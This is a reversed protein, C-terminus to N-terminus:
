ECVHLYDGAVLWAGSANLRLPTGFEDLSTNTPLLQWSDKAPFRPTGATLNAPLASLQAYRSFGYANVFLPRTTLNMSGDPSYNSRFQGFSVFYSPQGRMYQDGILSFPNAKTEDLLLRYERALDYGQYSSLAYIQGVQNTNAAYVTELNTIPGLTENLNFQTWQLAAENPAIAISAGANYWLGTSSGIIARNNGTGYAISAFSAKEPAHALTTLHLQGAAFDAPDIPARMLSKDTLIYLYNGDGWVKLVCGLNGLYKFAFATTPIGHYGHGTSNCLIALGSTGGAVIWSEIVGTVSFTNLASIPGLQELAGGTIIFTRTNATHAPFTGNTNTGMDPSFNGFIPHLVNDAALEGTLAVVVTNLGGALCISYPNMGSDEVVIDTFAQIGGKEKPLANSIISILGTNPAAAIGGLLGDGSGLGWVSQKFINRNAGTLWWFTGGAQDLCAQYTIDVSGVVRRWSSWSKIKGTEDFIAQSQYVGPAHGSRDYNQAVTLYISDGAVFIDGLENTYPLPYTGGVLVAPNNDDYITDPTTAPTTFARGTFRNNEYSNVPALTCNAISGQTHLTAAETSPPQALPLAYVRGFPALSFQTTIGGNIILYPLGTSTHMTRVHYADFRGDRIGAILDNKGTFATNPLIKEYYLKGNAFRGVVIARAGLSDGPQTEIQVAIYLRELVSDWWMDVPPSAHEDIIHAMTHGAEIRQVGQDDYEHDSVTLTALSTDFLAAHAESAGTHRPDLNILPLHHQQGPTVYAAGAIGSKGSVAPLPDGFHESNQVPALVIGNTIYALGIIDNAQDGNSDRPIDSQIQSVSVETPKKADKIKSEYIASFREEKPTLNDSVAFFLHDELYPISAVSSAIFKIKKGTLPNPQNIQDNLTVQAPAMPVFQKPGPVYLALAWINDAIVENAGTIASIIAGKAPLNVGGAPEKVFAVPGIGFTFTTDTGPANGKFVVASWMYTCTCLSVFIANKIKKGIRLTM